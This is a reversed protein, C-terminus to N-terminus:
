ASFREEQVIGKYAIEWIYKWDKSVDTALKRTNIDASVYKNTTPTESLRNRCLIRVSSLSKLSADYVIKTIQISRVHRVAEKTSITVPKWFKMSIIVGDVCYSYRSEESCLTEPSNKSFSYSRCDQQIFFM